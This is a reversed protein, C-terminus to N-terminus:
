SITNIQQRKEVAALPRLWPDGFLMSESGPISGALTAHSAIAKVVSSDAVVIRQGSLTM